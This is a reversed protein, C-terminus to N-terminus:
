SGNDKNHEGKLMAIEDQLYWVAKELDQVETNKDKLGARSVYKVANGRNFSMHRTLQIIEIGPYATYHTPHNVPDDATANEDPERKGLGRSKRLDNLSIQGSMYKELEDSNLYEIGHPDEGILELGDDTVEASSLKHFVFDACFCESCPWHAQKKVHDGTQYHYAYKHKCEACFREPDTVARYGAELGALSAERIEEFVNNPEGFKTCNCLAVCQVSNARKGVHRKRSHGCNTCKALKDIM